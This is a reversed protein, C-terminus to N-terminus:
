LSCFGCPAFNLCCRFFTHTLRLVRGFLLMMSSVFDGCFRHYLPLPPTLCPLFSPTRNFFFFTPPPTLLARQSVSSFSSHIPSYFGLLPRRSVASRVLLGLRQFCRGNPFKVLPQPVVRFKEAPPNRPVIILHCPYSLCSDRLM